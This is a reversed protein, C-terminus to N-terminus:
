VSSINIEVGFVLIDDVQEFNGRWKELEEEFLKEQENLSFKQISLLFDKFRKRTYKKLGFKGFQNILGDTTIYIKDDKQLKTFQNTFEKKSNMGISIRDAENTYAIYQHEKRIIYIPIKAGSYQLKQNYIDLSVLALDLYDDNKINIASNLIEYFHKDFLDLIKSVDRNGNSIIIEKLISIGVVGVIAGKVEHGTGDGVAFFTKNAYDLSWIFDGSLKDLPKDFVFFNINKKTTLSRKIFVYNLFDAYLLNTKEKQSFVLLQENTISLDATVQSFNENMAKIQQKHQLIQNDASKVDSINIDIVVFKFLQESSDYVPTITTQYWIEEGNDFIEHSTYSIIGKDKSYTRLEKVIDPRIKKYALRFPIDEYQKIKYAFLDTFGRNWWEIKGRNDLILVSNDTKQAVLSLQKLEATALELRESEKKLLDEQKRLIKSQMVLEEKHQELENKRFRIEDELTDNKKKIKKNRYYFVVFVFLLFIIFYLIIALTSLYFKSKVTFNVTIPNSELGYFSIAKIKVSYKGPPLQRFILNNTTGTKEWNKTKNQILFHYTTSESNDYFPLAFTLAINTNRDIKPLINYTFNEKQVISDSCYIKHILNGVEIKRLIFENNVEIYSNFLVPDISIVKDKSCVFLTNNYYNLKSSTKDFIDGFYLKEFNNTKKDLRCISNNTQIFLFDDIELHSIIISEKIENFVGTQYKAFQYKAFSVDKDILFYLGDATSVIVEDNYDFINYIRSNPLGNSEDYFNVIYNDLSENENFVVYFLKKDQCLWLNNESDFILNDIYFPLEHFYKEVTLDTEKKNTVRVAVLEKFNAVYLRNKVVPSQIIRTANYIELSNNFKLNEDFVTVGGKGSVILYKLNDITMKLFSGAYIIQYDLPQLSLYPKENADTSFIGDSTAVVIKGNFITAANVMDDINNRKDFYRVSSGLNIRSVGMGTGLWINKKDDVYACYVANSLLGNKKDFINLLDGNKNIVILGGKLTALAFTSDDIRVGNYIKGATLYSHANTSFDSFVGTTTNFLYLDGVLTGVLLTSDNYKLITRIDDLYIDSQKTSILDIKCGDITAIGKNSVAYIVNNVKFGRTIEFNSPRHVIEITNDNLVIVDKKNIFFYATGDRFFTRWTISIREPIEIDQTKYVGNELKSVLINNKAGVYFDRTLTDIDFSFYQYNDNKIFREWNQGDYEIFYNGTTFYMLGDDTQNIDWVQDSKYPNNIDFYNVIKPLGYQVQSFLLIQTGLFLFLLLIKRIKAM